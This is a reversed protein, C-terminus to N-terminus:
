SGSSHHPEAGPEDRGPHGPIAEGLVIDRRVIWVGDETRSPTVVGSGGRGRSMEERHAPTLRPDDTFIVDDVYYTCCGPEIVHLHVHAPTRTGPYGGPRITDFRVWGEEDATAWARLRGHRSRVGEPGVDDPYEGGADTHYAYVITGPAPTGDPHTVRCELRMPEGPEDSAAIRVTSPPADPLGRFVEDCGECPLGVVPVRGEVLDEGTADTCGPSTALVAIACPIAAVRTVRIIVPAAARSVFAQGRV